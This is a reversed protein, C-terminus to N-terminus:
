AYADVDAAGEGIEDRELPPAAPDDRPLYRARRMLRM